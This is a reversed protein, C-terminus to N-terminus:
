FEIRFGVEYSRPRRWTTADGPEYEGCGSVGNCVGTGYETSFANYVSGILVLRVRSITFGKM